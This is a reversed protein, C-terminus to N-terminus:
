LWWKKYIPTHKDREPPPAATLAPQPAPATTTAVPPPTTTAPPPAAPTPAPEPAVPPTPTPTPTASAQLKDLRAEIGKRRSTKPDAALYQKYADIAEATHGLQDQCLAIKYLIAPYKTLAYSQQFEGLAGTYDAADFLKQGRQFHERSQADQASEAFAGGTLTTMLMVVIAIRM